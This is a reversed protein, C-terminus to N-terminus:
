TGGRGINLLWTELTDIIRWRDREGPGDADEGADPATPQAEPVVAADMSLPADIEPPAGDLTDRITRAAEPDGQQELLNAMTPTSYVRSAGIEFGEEDVPTSQGTPDIPAHDLLAREAMDNVSVMQDREAEAEEFAMAIESDDVNADFTEAGDPSAIQPLPQADESPDAEQKAQVERRHPELLSDLIPSLALRASDVDELDLLSLGLSVQGAMRSPAEALGRESVERAENARGKRRLAEALAPFEPCGPNREVLASLAELDYENTTDSESL